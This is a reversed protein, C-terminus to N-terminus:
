LTLLAKQQAGDIMSIADTIQIASLQHMCKNKWGYRCHNGLKSCPQSKRNLPEVMISNEGALWPQMGLSPRTCGWLSIIDKKLAAAIHMLGTDGVVVMKAQKLVSASQGLTLKGCLNLCDVSSEIEASLEVEQAGGLLVMPISVDKLWNIWHSADARKGLHTAGLVVAIFQGEQIEFFDDQSLYFELGEHDEQINFAKATEVYREVVHGINGKIGWKVWLYKALNRKKLSFALTKLRRKVLASRLNSQLDFIYDFEISQLNQYCEAVSHNFTHLCDIRPNGSLCASFKKKVLYHIEIQGEWQTKLCRLFSTTLVIDGISSFRIVLVRTLL